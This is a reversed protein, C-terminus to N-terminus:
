PQAPPQSVSCSYIMLPSDAPLDRYCMGGERSPTRHGPQQVIRHSARIEAPPPVLCPTTLKTERDPPQTHTAPPSARRLRPPQDAWSGKTAATLKPRYLPCVCAGSRPPDNLAQAEREGGPEKGRVERGVPLFQSAGVLRQAASLTHSEPEM